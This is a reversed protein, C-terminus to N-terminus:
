AGRSRYKAIIDSVIKHGTKNPSAFLLYYIVTNNSNRMPLPEAVYAFGAIDHLRRVYAGVVAENAQKEPRALEPFLTQEQAYAAQMWSDDGWFASMRARQAPRVKEPSRWLVNRNMDMVMFNIFVEITGMRGATQVVAWDLNIGYPDLLCLARRRDRPQVRPFVRDLLISNCDGLYLSVEPRGGVEAELAKVKDGDLDIFHYERFPPSVNLANVPSGPIFEGTQKSVHYGPGSFADIYLHHFGRATLIVSYPQAYKRVIDLKVESWYDIQDFRM